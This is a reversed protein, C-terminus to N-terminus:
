QIPEKKKPSLTWGADNKKSSLRMGIKRLSSNLSNRFSYFSRYGDLNEASISVTEGNALKDFVEKRTMEYVEQRLKQM